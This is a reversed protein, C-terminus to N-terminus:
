AVPILESRRYPIQKLQLAREVAACPHSAPIAYLVATMRASCLPPRLVHSTVPGPMDTDQSLRM